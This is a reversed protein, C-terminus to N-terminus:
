ISDYDYYIHQIPNTVSVVSPVQGQSSASYIRMMQISNVICGNALLAYELKILYIQIIGLDNIDHINSNLASVRYLFVFVFIFKMNVVHPHHFADLNWM